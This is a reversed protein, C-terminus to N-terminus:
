AVGQGCVADREARPAFAKVVREEQALVSRRFQEIREPSEADLVHLYIAGEEPVLEVLLSGPVLCVLESTITMILESRSRLDIRLLASAPAGSPRIAFWSVEVSARLLDWLFRVALVLTPWPRIVWTWPAQPFPFVAVVLLAALVGGVVITPTVAGWLLVWVITLGVVMPLRGSM